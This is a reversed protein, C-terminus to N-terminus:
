GGGSPTRSGRVPTLARVVLPHARASPPRRAPRARRPHPRPGGRGLDLALDVGIAARMGGNATARTLARVQPRLRRLTALAARARRQLPTAALPQPVVAVPDPGRLAAGIAELGGVIAGLRDAIAAPADPRLALRLARAQATLSLVYAFLPQATVCTVRDAAAVHDCRGGACVDITCADGDEACAELDARSASPVCGLGDRGPAEPACVAAACGDLPVCASDIPVHACDGAVCVDNTCAFGDDPCVIPAGVCRGAECRDGVTCRDEDTCAAGSAPAHVCALRECRDDTCPDDDDCVFPVGDVCPQAAAARPVLWVALVLVCSRAPM